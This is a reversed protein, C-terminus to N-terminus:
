EPHLLSEAIEQIRARTIGERQEVALPHDTPELQIFPRQGVPRTHAMTKLNLTEPYLSLRTSLWGFSPPEKERGPTEWLQITRQFNVPSLSVWVTWIFPEDSGIIPIELNGCVFYHQDDLVCLDDNLEARTQREADTLSQFADPAATGYGMPLTDHHQGCCACDFGDM